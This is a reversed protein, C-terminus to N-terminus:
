FRFVGNKTRKIKELNELLKMRMIESLNVQEKEIWLKYTAYIFRALRGDIKSSGCISYAIIRSLFRVDDQKVINIVMTKGNYVGKTYSEVKKKVMKEGIPVSGKKSLSTVEHILDTPIGVVSDQM